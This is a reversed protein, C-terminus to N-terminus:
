KAAGAPLVPLRRPHDRIYSGTDRRHRAKLAVACDRAYDPQIQRISQRQLNVAVAVLIWFMFRLQPAFIYVNSMAFLFVGCSVTIAGMTARAPGVAGLWLNILHCLITAYLVCEAILGVYGFEILDAAYQNDWSTHGIKAATGGRQREFYRSLDMFETSYGGYGFLLRAPAVNIESAAVRWLIWRYEYSAGKLTDSEFTSNTLNV